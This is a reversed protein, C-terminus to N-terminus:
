LVKYIKLTQINEKLCAADLLISLLVDPSPSPAHAEEHKVGVGVM